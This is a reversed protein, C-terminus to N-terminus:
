KIRALEWGMTPSLALTPNSALFKETCVETSM